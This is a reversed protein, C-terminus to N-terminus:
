LCVCKSWIIPLLKNSNTKWVYETYPIHLSTEGARECESVYSHISKPRVTKEMQRLAIKFNTCKEYRKLTAYTGIWFHGNKKKMREYLRKWRTFLLLEEELAARKRENKTGRARKSVPKNCINVMEGNSEIVKKPKHTHKNKVVSKVYKQM